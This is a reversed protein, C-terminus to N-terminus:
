TFSKIYEYSYYNLTRLKKVCKSFLIGRYLTLGTWSLIMLSTLLYLRWSKYRQLHSRATAVIVLITGLLCIFTVACRTAFYPIGETIIADLDEQPLKEYIEETDCLVPVQPLDRAKLDTPSFNNTPNNDGM